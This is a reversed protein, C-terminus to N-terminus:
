IIVKINQTAEALAIAGADSYQGLTEAPINQERTRVIGGTENYFIFQFLAVPDGVTYTIKIELEVATDEVIGNFVKEVPEIKYTHQRM